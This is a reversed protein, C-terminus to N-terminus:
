AEKERTLFMNALTVAMTFLFLVVGLACAYGYRGFQAVNFYLELAPVYTSTGPGGQTLIYIENFNQMIGIMTLILMVRFQPRILPLQIRWFIDRRRAGDVVASEEVERGIGILGGYYVLFAMANVFPFGMFVIAWIATGANGLWVRTWSERGIRRLLENILGINPDYIKLWTMASIVGPVVIPLVFLFRHLYKRRGGSASYVLWACLVPVTLVKVVGTGALILLNRMGVLFYGETLMRRFNDLGVFHMKAVTNNTLSWDTFARVLATLIGRYNFLWILIFTPALLLYAMRCRWIRRATWRIAAGTGPFSLLLFFVAAPYLVAAAARTYKAAAINRKIHALEEMNMSKIFDGSGTFWVSGGEAAFGAIGAGIRDTYIQEDQENLIFLYGEESGVAVYRQEGDTGVSSPTAQMGNAIRGHRLICLEDDFFFYGGDKCLVLHSDGADIMQVVSYDTRYETEKEGGEGIRILEGRNNGIIMRDDATIAIGGIRVKFSASELLQGNRDFLLAGAKSTGTLTAAAIREGDDSVAIAVVRRQVDITQVSRGDNLDYLYIHGDQNGAFVLGSSVEVDAFAGQASQRWLEGGDRFAILENSGTTGVLLTQTDEDCAICSNVAGTSVPAATIGETRARYLLHAATLLLAAAFLLISIAATKKGTEM